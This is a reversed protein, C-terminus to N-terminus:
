ELLEPHVLDQQPLQGLQGAATYEGLRAVGEQLGPPARPQGQVEPGPQDSEHRHHQDRLDRQATDTGAEDAPEGLTKRPEPPLSSGSMASRPVRDLQVASAPKRATRSSLAAGAAAFDRLTSMRGNAGSSSPRSSCHSPSPTASLRRRDSVWNGDSMRM